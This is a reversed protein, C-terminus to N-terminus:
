EGSPELYGAQELEVVYGRITDVDEAPKLAALGEADIDWQGGHAMIESLLGRAGLSLSHDQAWESPMGLDVQPTSRVVRIPADWPFDDEENPRNM